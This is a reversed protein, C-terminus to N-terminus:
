WNRIRRLKANLTCTAVRSHRRWIGMGRNFSVGASSSASHSAKCSRSACVFGRRSGSGLLGIGFKVFRRRIVPLIRHDLFQVAADRICESEVFAITRQHFVEDTDADREIVALDPPISHVRRRPVFQLGVRFPKLAFEVALGVPLAMRHRHKM